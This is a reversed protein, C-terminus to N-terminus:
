NAPCQNERKPRTRAVTMMATLVFDNPSRLDDAFHNVLVRVAEMMEVFSTFRTIFFIAKQATCAFESGEFRNRSKWPSWRVTRKNLVIRVNMENYKYGHDASEGLVKRGNAGM